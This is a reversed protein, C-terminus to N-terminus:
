VIWVDYDVGGDPTARNMILGEGTEVFRRSPGTLIREAEEESWGGEEVSRIAFELDLVERSMREFDARTIRGM